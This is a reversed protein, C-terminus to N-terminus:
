WGSVAFIAPSLMHAALFGNCATDLCENWQMCHRPSTICLLSATYWMDVYFASRLNSRYVRHIIPDGKANYVFFGEICAMGQRCQSAQREVLSLRQV